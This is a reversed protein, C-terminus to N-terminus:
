YGEIGKRKHADRARIPGRSSEPLPPAFRTGYMGHTVPEGTPPFPQNAQPPCSEVRPSVRLPQAKNPRYEKATKVLREVSM